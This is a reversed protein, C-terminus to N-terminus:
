DWGSQDASGLIAYVGLVEGGVHKIMHFDTYGGLFMVFGAALGAEVDILIIRPDMVGSGSGPEESSCSVAATCGLSFGNEMRTCDSSFACGGEPFMKFYKVMWHDLEERTARQDEPVIEEWGEEEAATIMTGTNSAVFYDGSRVAITEIETIKQDVLKLRLGLPIDSSGDPVVAQTVTGCTETDFLSMTSKVMGANAWLGEGLEMVEGNETFKVGDALPLSSADHAALATFYADVTGALLERTCGGEGGDAGGGGAQEGAAGEGASAGTGGAGSGGTGAPSSGGSGASSTGSSGASPAGANNGAIPAATGAAGAGGSGSASAPFGAMAQDSDNNSSDSCAAIPSVAACGLAVWAMCSLRDNAARRAFRVRRLCARLLDM